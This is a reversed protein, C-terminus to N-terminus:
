AARREKGEKTIRRYLQGVRARTIGLMEAIDKYLFGKKRLKVIKHDRQYDRMQLKM